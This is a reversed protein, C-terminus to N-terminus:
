EVRTMRKMRWEDLDARQYGVAKWGFRTFPPGKGGNNNAAMRELSRAKIPYGRRTLYDAAQKRTLWNDDAV